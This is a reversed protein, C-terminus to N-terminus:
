DSCKAYTMVVNRYVLGFKAGIGSFICITLTLDVEFLCAIFWWPSLTAKRM